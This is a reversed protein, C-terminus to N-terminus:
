EGFTFNFLYNIGISVSAARPNFANTLRDPAQVPALEKVPDDEDYDDYVGTLFYGAKIYANLVGTEDEFMPYSYGFEIEALSSLLDVDITEGFDASVPYGFNFGILFKEFYFSACFTAYSYRFDFNEETDYNQQRYTYTSYGFDFTVALDSTASIPLYTTFGFDPIGNFGLANKRGRPSDTGNVGTKFDLYPGFKVIYQGQSFAGYQLFILAAITLIIRKM